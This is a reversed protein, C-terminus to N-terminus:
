QQSGGTPPQPARQPDAAPPRGAPQIPAGDALKQVGSTIVREGPKIGELVPYNNGVIPGVKVGRQKAVLKGDRDEAVFAFFQGSIRLVSTVPVVLAETTKWVIRARVYQSTRLAAGPNPVVGKVLVSQTQDDVRPSIFSVVTRALTEVAGSDLILIPLGNRLESAREVPVSVYVELTDNQDVTTLVTQSSVDFGVRVPVDGIMGAVPAVVTYYRLMVQQQQLQADLASLNAEATRLATAAAEQEQRSIAGAALLQSTRDAQQRAYAVSAELATRQAQQSQVAAQQRRPDIQFLPAGPRVRDGSKVLIQTIQGDTQPHVETSHLSRLTAVYETADEVPAMTAPTIDVPTPPFAPPAAGTGGNCAAATVAVVMITASLLTGPM